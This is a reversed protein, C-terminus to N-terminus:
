YYLGMASFQAVLDIEMEDVTPEYLLFIDSERCNISFQRNLFNSLQLSTMDKIEYAFRAKAVGLWLEVEDLPTRKKSVEIVNNM